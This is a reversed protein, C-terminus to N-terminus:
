GILKKVTQILEEASYPKALYGSVNQAVILERVKEGQLGTAMVVPIGPAKDKGQMGQRVSMNILTTLGNKDPMDVDMIILSPRHERNLFELAKQGDSVCSVHYGSAELRTRTLESYDPDDDVLLIEKHTPNNTM